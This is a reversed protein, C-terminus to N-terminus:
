SADAVASRSSARIAESAFWQVLTVALRVAAEAEERSAESSTFLVRALASRM